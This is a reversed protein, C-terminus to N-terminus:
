DYFYYSDIAYAPDGEQIRLYDMIKKLLKDDHASIPTTGPSGTFDESDETDWDVCYRLAVELLLEEAKKSREMFSEALARYFDSPMDSKLEKYDYKYPYKSLYEEVYCSLEEPTNAEFIKYYNPITSEFNVLYEM